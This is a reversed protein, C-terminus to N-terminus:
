VRTLFTSAYMDSCMDLCMDVCLDLGDLRAHNSPCQTELTGDRALMTDANSLDVVDQLLVALVVDLWSGKGEARPTDRRWASPSHRPALAEAM